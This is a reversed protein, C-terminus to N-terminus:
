RKFVRDNLSTRRQWNFRELEPDLHEEEPWGILLYGVLKWDPPVDMLTTVVQPDIISVWGLGLGKERAALWLLMIMCACSYDYAEPMTQAGLGGGQQPTQGDCNTASRDSFVAVHVPAADFGALKLSRYHISRQDNMAHAASSNAQEFNQRVAARREPDTVYVIRWPQSNGVSPALDAVVLLQNVLEASVADPRFRRVDRRWSALQELTLLTSGNGDGPPRLRLLRGHSTPWKTRAFVGYVGLLTAALAWWTLAYELHRNSLNNFIADSAGPKPWGGLNTATSDAEIYFPAAAFGNPIAGSMAAIDRWYWTNRTPENDPTFTAKTGGFRIRGTITMDGKPLGPDRSKSDRFADPVFGRDVLVSLKASPVLLPTMIQWGPGANLPAYLHRESAHDFTGVLTVRLFEPTGIGKANAATLADALPVLAAKAREAREAILGEKWAKRQWQWNGLTFLLAVGALTALTPWILGAAKLKQLM